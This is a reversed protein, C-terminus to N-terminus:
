NAPRHFPCRDAEIPSAVDKHVMLKLFYVGARKIFKTVKRSSRHTLEGGHQGFRTDHEQGLKAISMIPMGVKANQFCVQARRGEETKARILMEGENVIDGDNAAKYKKGFHKGQTVVSGPFHKDKCATHISSGSDMLAWVAVLDGDSTVEDGIDPLLLAGTEVAAVISAIKSPSLAKPKRLEKQPVKSGTRVHSTMAACAQFVAADDDEDDTDLLSFPNEHEQRKYM